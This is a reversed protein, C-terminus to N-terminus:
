STAIQRVAQQGARTLCGPDMYKLSSVARCAAALPQLTRLSWRTHEQHQTHALLGM